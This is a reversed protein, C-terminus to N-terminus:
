LRQKIFEMFAQESEAAVRYQDPDLDIPWMARASEGLEKEREALRFIAIEAHEAGKIVVTTKDKSPIRKMIELGGEYPAVRDNEALIALVPMDLSAVGKAYAESSDGLLSHLLGVRLPNISFATDHEFDHHYKDYNRIITEGLHETPALPWLPHVIHGVRSVIKAMWMPVTLFDQDSYAGGFGTLILGSIEFNKLRKWPFAMVRGAGLADGRVFVKLTNDYKDLIPRVNEDLCILVDGIEQDVDEGYSFLGSSRSGWFWDLAVTIFGHHRALAEMAFIYSDSVIDMGLFLILVVTPRRLTPEMIQYHLQRGAATRHFRRSLRVGELLAVEYKPDDSNVILDKRPYLRAPGTIVSERVPYSSLRQQQFLFDM